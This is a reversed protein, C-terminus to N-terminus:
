SGYLAAPNVSDVCKNKYADYYGYFLNEYNTSNSLSLQGDNSFKLYLNNKMNQLQLFRPSENTCNYSTRNINFTQSSNYLERTFCNVEGGENVGLLGGNWSRLAIVTENVFIPSWLSAHSINKSLSVDGNGNCNLSDGYFDILAIFDTFPSEPQEIHQPDVWYQDPILKILDLDRNKPTTILSINGYPSTVNESPAVTTEIPTVNRAMTTNTENLTVNEFPPVESVIPTTNRGIETTNTENITFNRPITISSINAPSSVILTINVINSANSPLIGTNNIPGTRNHYEFPFISTNFPNPIESSSSINPHTLTRNRIQKIDEQTGYNRKVCNIELVTLIFLLFKVM